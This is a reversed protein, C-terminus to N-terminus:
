QKLPASATANLDVCLSIGGMLHEKRSIPVTLTLTGNDRNIDMDSSKIDQIFNVNLRADMTKRLDSDSQDTGEALISELSHKITFYDIYAPIVKFSVLAAAMALGLLFLLSILTLGRQHNM